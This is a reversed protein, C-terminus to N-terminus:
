GPQDFAIAVSVRAPKGVILLDLRAHDRRRQRALDWQIAGGVRNGGRAGGGQDIRLAFAEGAAKGFDLRLATKPYRRFLSGMSTAACARGAAPETTLGPGTAYFVAALSLLIRGDSFATARRWPRFCPVSCTRLGSGRVFAASGPVSTGGMTSAKLRALFVLALTGLGTSTGCSFRATAM